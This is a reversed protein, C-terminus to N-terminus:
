LPESNQDEDNEEDIELTEDAESDLQELNEEEEAENDPFIEGPNM